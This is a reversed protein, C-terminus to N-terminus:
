HITSCCLRSRGTRPHSWVNPESSLLRLRGPAGNIQAPITNSVLRALSQSSAVRGRDPQVDLPSLLHGLLAASFYHPATRGFPIVARLRELRLSPRRLRGEGNSREEGRAYVEGRTLM